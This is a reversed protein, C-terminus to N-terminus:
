RLRNRYIGPTSDPIEIAGVTKVYFEPATVGGVVAYAYGASAMAQLCALLLAKGIGRGRAGEAVGLPGFFGRCTVDYCAFGLLEGRETAIFCSIPRNGFAIDAESAWAQGFMREVWALIQHKEYAMGPRLICEGMNQAVVGSDRESLDYLKVLFDSM